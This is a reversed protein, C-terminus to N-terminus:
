RKLFTKFTQWLSKYCFMPFLHNQMFYKLPFNERKKRGWFDENKRFQRNNQGASQKGM